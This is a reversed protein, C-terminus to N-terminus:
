DIFIDNKTAACGDFVASSNSLIQMGNNKNLFLGDLKM